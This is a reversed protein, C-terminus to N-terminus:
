CGPLCFLLRCTLLIFCIGLCVKNTLVMSIVLFRINNQIARSFGSSSPAEHDEPANESQRDRGVCLIFCLPEDCSQCGFMEMMGSISQHICDNLIIYLRIFDYVFELRERTLLLGAYLGPVNVSAEKCPKLTTLPSKVAAGSSVKIYVIM